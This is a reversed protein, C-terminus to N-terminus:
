EVGKSRFWIRWEKQDHYTTAQNTTEQVPAIHLAALIPDGKRDTNTQTVATTGTVVEEEHIIEYGQPFKQSMLETAKKRNAETNSPIAVVGENGDLRVYRASACGTLLSFLLGFAGFRKIWGAM